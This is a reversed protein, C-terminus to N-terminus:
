WRPPLGAVFATDAGALGLKAGGPSGSPEDRGPLPWAIVYTM